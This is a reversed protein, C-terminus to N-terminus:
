SKTCPQGVVSCVLQSTAFQISVWPLREHQTGASATAEQHGFGGSGIDQDRGASLLLKLFTYVTALWANYRAEYKPQMFRGPILQKLMTKQSHDCMHLCGIGPRKEGGVQGQYM